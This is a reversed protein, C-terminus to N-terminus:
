VADEVWEQRMQVVNPGTFERGTGGQGAVLNEVGEVYCIYRRGSQLWM